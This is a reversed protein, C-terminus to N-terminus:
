SKKAAHMSAINILNDFAREIELHDRVNPFNAEIHVNQDLQQSSYLSNLLGAQSSTLEALSSAISMNSTMDRVASVAALINSTDTANLILEKGHLYALKGQGEWDGTYGGTAYSTANDILSLYSTTLKEINQKLQEVDTKSLKDSTSLDALSGGDFDNNKKVQLYSNLIEKLLDGNTRLNEMFQNAEDLLVEIQDIQKQTANIVGQYGAIMNNQANALETIGATLEIAGDAAAAIDQYGLTTKISADYRNIYGQVEKLAGQFAKIIGGEGNIADIYAQSQSDFIAVNEKMDNLAEQTSNFTKGMAEGYSDPLYTEFIVKNDESLAEWMRDYQEKEMDMRAKIKEARQTEGALMAQNYEQQLKTMTELYQRGKEQMAEVSKIYADKDLKYLNAIKEELAAEKDDLAEEQAVFQYTYNGQSDRRLRLETKKERAQELAYKAKEVELAAKARDLDYQTLNKKTKLLEIQKKQFENFKKQKDLDGKLSDGVSDYLREIESIGMKSEAIDLFQDDYEKLHDWESQTGETGLNTNLNEIADNVVRNIRTELLDGAAEILSEVKSRLQDTYDNMNQLAKQKLVPDNSTEYIDKWYKQYQQLRKVQKRDNDIQAAQFEESQKFAKEGFIMQSIKRGHDLVSNVREYQKIIDEQNSKMQDYASLLTEKIQDAQEQMAILNNQVNTTFEKLQQASKAAAAQLANKRDEIEMDAWAKETIGLAEFDAKTLGQSKLSKDPDYYTLLSKVTRKKGNVVRDAKTGAFNQYNTRAQNMAEINQALEGSDMYSFLNRSASKAQKAFDKDGIRRIFKDKFDLYQREFQGNDFKLQVKIEIQSLNNEIIQNINDVYEQYFKKDEELRKQYEELLKVRDDYTEKAKKKLEEADNKIAEKNKDLMAKYFQSASEYEGKTQEKIKKNEKEQDKTSKKNWETVWDNYEKQATDWKSNADEQITRVADNYQKIAWNTSATINKIQGDSDFGFNKYDAFTKELNAKLNATTGKDLQIEKNGKRKRRDQESKALRKQIINNQKELAKNQKTLNTLREKGNLKNQQNQIKDLVESQREYQKTIQEYPDYINQVKESYKQYLKQKKVKKVKEPDKGKTKKPTNKKGGSNNKGSNGPNKSSKNNSSGKPKKVLSKIVPTKGNSSMAMADVYQTYTYPNGQQTRTTTKTQPLSQFALTEGTDYNQVYTTVPPLEQVTSYTIQQYGTTEVPQPQTAFVPQYGIQDLMTNVQEATYGGQRIMENLSDIFASNDVNAGVKIDLKSEYDEILGQIQDFQGQMQEVDINLEAAIQAVIETELKAKLEDIATQSGKAAEEILAINEADEVFSIPIYDSNIDLLQSLAEVTGTAAEAYEQSDNSSNKLIDGWTQFNKSLTEVGNNMKMISKAVIKAAVDDDKLSDELEDANTAAKQLYKSFEKLKKSDLGELDNAEELALYATSYGQWSLKGQDVLKNLEDLNTATSAIRMQLQFSSQILESQKQKVEEETITLEKFKNNIENIVTPDNEALRKSLDGIVSEETGFSSLLDLKQDATQAGENQKLYDLNVNNLNKIQQFNKGIEKRFNQIAIDNVAKKLQDASKALQYGGQAANIFFRRLSEDVSTIKDLDEQTIIDGLNLKNTVDYLDKYSQVATKTAQATNLLYQIFIELQNDAINSGDTLNEMSLKLETASIKGQLFANSVEQIAPINSIDIKSLLQEVINFNQINGSALAQTLLGNVANVIDLSVNENNLIDLKAFANQVSKLKNNLSNNLAELSTAQQAAYANAFEKAAEQGTYGLQAIVEKNQSAWQHVRLVSNEDTLEGKTMGSFDNGLIMNKIGSAVGKYQDKEFDKFAKEVVTTAAGLQQLADRAAMMSAIYDRSYKVAETAGEEIVEFTRDVGGGQISNDTWRYNKGTIKNLQKLVDKGWDTDQANTTRGPEGLKDKWIKLRKEEGQALGKGLIKVIVNQDLGESNKYFESAIVNSNNRVAEEYALENAKENENLIKGLQNFSNLQEKSIANFVNQYESFEGQLFSQLDKYGKVNGKQFEYIATAIKNVEQPDIYTKYKEGPDAYLRDSTTTLLQNIKEVLLTTQKEAQANNYNNKSAVKTISAINLAEQMQLQLQRLGEETFKLIGNVNTVASALEPFKQTLELVLQNSERLKDNWDNTGEDIEQLAKQMQEYKSISTNIQNITNKLEKYNEEAEKVAASAKEIAEDQAAMEKTFSYVLAILGGIIAIYPALTILHAVWAKTASNVAGTEVMKAAATSGSAAAQEISAKRTAILTTTYNSLARGLSTFMPGVKSFGSILMTLGMSLSTITQLVKQGASLSDNKWIKTINSLSRIGSALQGIGAIGKVISQIDFQSRLIDIFRQTAGGADEVNRLYEGTKTALQHINDSNMKNVLSFIEQIKEVLAQAKREIEVTNDGLRVKGAEELAEKLQKVKENDSGLAQQLENANSEIEGFVDDRALNQFDRQLMAVPTQLNQLATNANEIRDNFAKMGAPDNINIKWAAALSERLKIAEDLEAKVVNYKNQERTQAILLNNLQQRQQNSIKGYIDKIKNLQNQAVNFQKPVGAQENIHKIVSNIIQANNKVNQMNIVVKNIESAIIGSFVSTLTSAFMLLANGGGGIAQIFNAFLTVGQTATDIMSKYSDSDVISSKLRQQAAGLKETHAALSEMYIANKQETAGQAELSINVLETYKNWNDFLTILKNYQRQGAMTRALYIQQERSLNEWKQGIEDIVDGTNRLKGNSDLVSVGVKLMATSYNGLSVQADDAGTSIDNIRAYVTKLANGVSEPAQRTTATITAIQAALSDVDVGLINAASSVKSMAIAIQSMNSASSDAVAALKDVYLEIEDNVVKYGNWVATLYDAMESGAGTINQAKLVAETRAQVQEDNLGQQYFTLAAKTYDLTSRGLESAARNAQTAFNAMEDASDRTVIRIDNLSSDLSKVYTFSQKISSTFARIATSAITWKATNMLTTGINKVFSSTQKLNLNTTLLSTSMTNFANQGVVGLRSFDSYIKDLSLSGLQTKFKSLNISNLNTNFANRLAQQVKLAEAKIQQLEKKTGTFGAGPKVDYIRQFAQSIQNLGAKDVNFGVQFNIRNGGTAM